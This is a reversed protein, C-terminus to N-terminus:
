FIWILSVEMNIISQNLDRRLANQITRIASRVLQESSSYPGVRTLIDKFDKRHIDIGEVVKMLRVARDIYRQERFEHTTSGLSLIPKRWSVRSFQTM